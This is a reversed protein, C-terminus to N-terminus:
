FLLACSPLASEENGGGRFNHGNDRKRFVALVKAGSQISDDNANRSVPFRNAGSIQSGGAAHHRKQIFRNKGIQHLSGVARGSKDMGPGESVDRVARAADDALLHSQTQGIVHDVFASKGGIQARLFIEVDDHLLRADHRRSRYQDRRHPAHLVLSLSVEFTPQGIQSLM